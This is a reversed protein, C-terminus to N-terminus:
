DRPRPLRRDSRCQNLPVPRASYIQTIQRNRRDTRVRMCACGYGYNGNTNVWGNTTMDPVNDMGRARYGGQASMLWGDNWRTDRDVLWYTGPTPNVLWGCRTESGRQAEAATATLLLAPLLLLARRM